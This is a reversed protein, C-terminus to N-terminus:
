WQHSVIPTAFFEPSILGLARQPKSCHCKGVILKAMPGMNGQQGASQPHILFLGQPLSRIGWIGLCAGAVSGLVEGAQVWGTGPQM